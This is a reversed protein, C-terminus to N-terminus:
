SASAPQAAYIATVFPDDIVGDVAFAAAAAELEDLMAARPTHDMGAIAPFTAFLGKVQAPTMRYTWRILEHRAVHFWGGHELEAIRDAVQMARPIEALPKWESPRRDRFIRDVEHRFPTITDPDGFVNWWAVLWGGPRIASALRPLLRATDLWHFVTAAIVADYGPEPFPETHVDGVVIRVREDPVHARLTEALHPGLEIADVRAGRRLLEITAQGTGPGIELIHAGEYIAGIEGLFAFVREPYPPRGERYLDANRDFSDRRVATADPIDHEGPM